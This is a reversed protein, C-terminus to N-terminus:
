QSGLFLKLDRPSLQHQRAHKVSKTLLSHIAYFAFHSDLVLSTNEGILFSPLNCLQALLCLWPYNTRFFWIIQFHFTELLNSPFGFTCNRRCMFLSVNKTVCLVKCKSVFALFSIGTFSKSWKLSHVEFTTGNLIWSCNQFVLTWNNEVCGAPFLPKWANPLNEAAHVLSTPEDAWKLSSTLSSNTFGM